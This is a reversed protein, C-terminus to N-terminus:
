PAAEAARRRAWALLGAVPYKSDDLQQLRALLEPPADPFEMLVSQSGVVVFSTERTIAASARLVHELEARKM